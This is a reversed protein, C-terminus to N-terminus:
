KLKRRRRLIKVLIAPIALILLVAVIIVIPVLIHLMPTHDTIMAYVYEIHRFGNSFRQEALLFWLSSNTNEVMYLIQHARTVYEFAIIIEVGYGKSFMLEQNNLFTNHVWGRFEENEAYWNEAIENSFSHAIEHVLISLTSDNLPMVILGAYVYRENTSADYRVAALNLWDKSPSLMIRLNDPNAGFQRFWELNLNNVIQEAFPASIEQYFATHQQFFDSFNTDRYFDNLLNVFEPANEETWTNFGLFEPMIMESIDDLLVFEEGMKELHIAMSFVDNSMPYYSNKWLYLIYNVVPHNYFAGFTSNLLQMYETNDASFTMSPAFRDALEAPVQQEALRFVLALLEYREDVLNVHLNEAQRLEAASVEVKANFGSTIVVCLIMVLTQTVALVLKRKKTIKM